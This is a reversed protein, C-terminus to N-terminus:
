EGAEWEGAADFVAGSGSIRVEREEEGIIRISVTLDFEMSGEPLRDGWEVIVVNRGDVADFLGIREVEDLKDLRYLDFHLLPIRGGRYEEVLIFTPSLVEAEIGLGLAIGKVLVTKGAGLGGELSITSGAPLIRGIHRGLSRTEGSSASLIVRSRADGRDGTRETERGKM